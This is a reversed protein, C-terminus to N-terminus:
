RVTQILEGSVFKLVAPVYGKEGVGNAINATKAFPHIM